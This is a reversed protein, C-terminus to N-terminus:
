GHAQRHLISSFEEMFIDYRGMLREMNNSFRNYAIVAPIAAFLGIATAILAESIGPAVSAISAQQVSGLARFSNMVGWVTGFLGVYPSTSGITALFSLHTELKEYERNLIVRMARQVGEMIAAREIGAQKRLNVFERFGTEFIAEMGQLKDKRASLQRYLEGLEGGGWFRREFQEAETRAQRLVGTKIYIIMWSLFSVAILLLLVLQVVLSANLLLHIISLDTSM